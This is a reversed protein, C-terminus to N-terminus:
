VSAETDSSFHYAKLGKKVLDRENKSGTSHLQKLLRNYRLISGNLRQIYRKLQTIKKLKEKKQTQFDMTDDKRFM